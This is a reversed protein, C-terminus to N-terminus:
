LWYHVMWCTSRCGSVVCPSFCLGFVECRGLWRGSFTKIFVYSYSDILALIHGSSSKITNSTLPFWDSGERVSNDAAEDWESVPDSGLPATSGSSYPWRYNLHHPGNSGLARQLSKFNRRDMLFTHCLCQQSFQNRNEPQQGNMEKRHVGDTREQLCVSLSARETLKRVDVM